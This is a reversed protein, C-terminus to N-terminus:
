AMPALTPLGFEKVHLLPGFFFFWDRASLTRTKQLGLMVQGHCESVRQFDQFAFAMCLYNLGVAMKLLGGTHEDDVDEMMHFDLTGFALESLQLAKYLLKHDTYLSGVCHDCLSMNYLLVVVAGSTDFGGNDPLRFAHPYLPFVNHPSISVSADILVGDMRCPVYNQSSSIPVAEGAEQHEDDHEETYNRLLAFAERFLGAAASADGADKLLAVAQNNLASITAATTQETM